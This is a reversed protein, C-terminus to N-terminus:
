RGSFSSHSSKGTLLHKLRSFTEPQINLYSALFKQPVRQLLEPHNKMFRLFRERPTFRFNDILWSEKEVLLDMMMLRGMRETRDDRRFFEELNERNISVLVTPEITEIIYKSPQGTFFSVFSCFVGEEKAISKVIEEEERLFYKRLLGQAIFNFYHDVEGLDILKVKRPFSRIETIGALFETDSKSLSIYRSFYQEIRRLM